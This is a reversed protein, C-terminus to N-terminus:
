VVAAKQSVRRLATSLEALTATRPLANHRGTPQQQRSLQVEDLGTVEQLRRLREFYCLHLQGMRRKPSCEEHVQLDILETECFDWGCEIPLGDKCQPHDGLVISYTRVELAPSFKVHKGTRAKKSSPQSPITSDSAVRGHLPRNNNNDTSTIPTPDFSPAPAQHDYLEEGAVKYYEVFHEGQCPIDSWGFAGGNFSVDRSLVVAASSDGGFSIPQAILLSTSM